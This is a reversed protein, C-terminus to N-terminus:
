IERQYCREGECDCVVFTTEATALTIPEGERKRAGM